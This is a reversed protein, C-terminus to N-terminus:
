RFEALFATIVAVELRYHCLERDGYALVPVKDGYRRELAPDRDVDVTHFDFSNAAQLRQLATIMDECLHCQSRSYVTLRPVADIAM